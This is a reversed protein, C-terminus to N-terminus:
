RAIELVNGTRVLLELILSLSKTFEFKFYERQRVASRIFHILQGAEASFGHEDLAQQVRSLELADPRGEARHRRRSPGPRFNMQDYRETRIDYTGM